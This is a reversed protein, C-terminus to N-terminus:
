APLEFHVSSPHLNPNHFPDHMMLDPHAVYLRHRDADLRARQEPTEHDLGRSLSEHHLLEVSPCVVNYLGRKLLRFCLDVDNYAVPFSEDFGGVAEFKAREVMLCAGTVASWDYELLNRMFYGPDDADRRLFAHNPGGSLNLLGSHQVMRTGPYILKAGVAGIHPLQAYGGMRELWDASQAETDDNLFLLLDGKAQRAGINNLESYNFPAAHRIVSADASAALSHLYDLTDPRSSGNDLIVFEFGRYTSVERIAEVCRQLVPGNDKTPIIISVLPEGQPKYNVRFYGPVQAVPEVTGVLGRRELAAIRARRAADIAYPKAALDSAVSAPIIRWHYLVKPIHAIRKARETIRLVLDWDQSGDYESRLPGVEALLSRRVCSVHCTYMTSMLTDPSWDPKFFPQTFTGEPTIKDEDSYIYDADERAICLALEYLCDETLEDDHDLFVVYDGTAHELAVNTAGSIGKNTTCFVTEVRSDRIDRLFGRTEESPSADDAFVLQWDPYWQGQVSALLRSLLEATTNYTPVVISFRPRRPLGALIRDLDHPRQPPVYTYGAPERLLQYRGNRDATRGIGCGPADPQFALFHRAAVRREQRLAKLVAIRQPMRHPTLMWWALRAARRLNRHLPPPLRRLASRLPATARWAATGRLGAPRVPIRAAQSPSPSLAGSAGGLPQSSPPPTQQGATGPTPSALGTRMANPTPMDDLRHHASLREGLHAYAARIAAQQEANAEFLPRLGAPLAPGIALIGLGDGHPFAFAPHRASLESWLRSLGPANEEALFGGILVIGRESLKAQWAEFDQLPDRLSPQGALHLLDISDPQFRSLAAQADELLIQSVSSHRCANLVGLRSRVNEEDAPSAIAHCTTALGLQQVMDCFAFYSTGERTGLEVLSRPQLAEMLWFVFPVQQLWPSKPHQSPTRFSAPGLCRLSAAADIAAQMERPVELSM